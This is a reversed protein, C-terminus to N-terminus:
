GPGASAPRNHQDNPVEAPQYIGLDALGLCDGDPVRSDHLMACYGPEENMECQDCASQNSLRWYESVKDLYETLGM